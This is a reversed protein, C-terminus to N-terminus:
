NKLKAAGALFTSQGRSLGDPVVPAMLLPLAHCGLRGITDRCSGILIGHGVTADEEPKESPTFAVFSPM